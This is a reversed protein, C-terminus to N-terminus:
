NELNGYLLKIHEERFTLGKATLEKIVEAKYESIKELSIDEFGEEEVGYCIQKGIYGNPGNYLNDMFNEVDNDDWSDPLKVDSVKIGVAIFSSSSSNSVFGQRIKM